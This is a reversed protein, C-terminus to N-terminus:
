SGSDGIDPSVAELTEVTWLSHGRAIFHVGSNPGCLAAALTSGARNEEETDYLCYSLLRMETVLAERDEGTVGDEFRLAPPPLALPSVRLKPVRSHLAGRM